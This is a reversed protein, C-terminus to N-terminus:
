LSAGVSDLMGAPYEVRDGSPPATEPEERSSSITLQMELGAKVTNKVHLSADLEAQGSSGDLRCDLVLESSDLALEFSYTGGSEGNPVVELRGEVTMWDEQYGLPVSTDWTLFYSSGSSQFCGDGIYEMWGLTSNSIEDWLYFPSASQACALEVLLEGVTLPRASVTGLGKLPFAAWVEPGSTLEMQDLFNGKLYFTEGEGDLIAELSLESLLARYQELEEREEPSFYPSLTDLLLDLLDELDATYAVNASQAGSLATGELLISYTQDGNLSDLMTLELDLDLCSALFEGEAAVDGGSLTCLIRNFLTFEKDIQEVAEQRDLLVATEYYSDWYVQYGFVQAFFAVPVMTHGNKVYSSVDMYAQEGGSLTLVNTGVVHTLAREGLSAQATHTLPDYMVEAGLYELAAAMPVMTRGDKVEPRVDPFPICQGDVMVNIGKEAGGRAAKAQALTQRAEEQWLMDSVWASLMEQYFEEETQGWDEMYDQATYGYWPQYEQEYYAYPDFAAVEDPHAEMWARQRVEQEELYAELELADAVFWDYYMDETIGYDSLMEELSSYGYQEWQPPDTDEYAFAPAALALALMLTLMLSLARKWSRKM